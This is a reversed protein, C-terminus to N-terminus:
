QNLRDLVIRELRRMRDELDHLRTDITRFASAILHADGANGQVNQQANTALSELAVRHRDVRTELTQIRTRLQSSREIGQLRFSEFETRLATVEDELGLFSTRRWMLWYQVQTNTWIM